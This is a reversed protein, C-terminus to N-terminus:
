DRIFSAIKAMFPKLGQSGRYSNREKRNKNIYFYPILVLQPLYLHGPCHHLFNRQKDPTM